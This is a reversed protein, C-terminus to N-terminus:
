RKLRLLLISGILTLVLLPQTSLSKLSWYYHIGGAALAVYGWQQLSFWHKGLRWKLIPLSSVALIVLLVLSFAGVALYPRRGVEQLFLPFEWALELGLFALMHLLAYACAWLGLIRRLIQYQTLRLRQLVIGLLYMLCFIVIATDGLFHILEKIPDAGLASEDNSFLVVTLWLLPILCISHLVFRLRNLM